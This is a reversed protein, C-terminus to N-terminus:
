TEVERFSIRPDLCVYAADALLNAALTLVTAFLLAVLAMNFDNGMIADFLGAAGGLETASFLLGPAPSSSRWGALLSARLFGERM